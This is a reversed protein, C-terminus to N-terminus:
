RELAVLHEAVFVQKMVRLCMCVLVPPLLGCGLQEM